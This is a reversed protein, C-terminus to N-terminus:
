WRGALVAGLLVGMLFMVEGIENLAGLTDGSLGGFCRKFFFAVLL